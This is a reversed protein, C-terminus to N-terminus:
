FDAMNEATQHMFVIQILDEESFVRVFTSDNILTSQM